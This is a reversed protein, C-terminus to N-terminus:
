SIVFKLNNVDLNCIQILSLGSSWSFGSNWYFRNNWIQLRSSLLIILNEINCSCKQTYHGIAHKHPRNKISLNM